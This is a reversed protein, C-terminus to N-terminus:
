LNAPEPVEVTRLSRVERLNALYVLVSVLGAAYMVVRYGLMAIAGGSFGLIDGFLRESIQESVGLAGFPIPIATSFLILPVVVFHSALGPAEPGFLGRDVLFFALVYLAHGCIALILAMAVVRLRERYASAMAALETLLRALKGEPNLRSILARFLAPSFLITLGVVGCAVMLAWAFAIVLRVDRPATGWVFVGVVGALVFLGLLGLIRDIVMSAVAQTKREQERCLFAAKIVDGGVAGPIVLNFVNGIFGCPAHRTRSASRCDRLRM